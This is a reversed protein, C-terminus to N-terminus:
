VGTRCAALTETGQGRGRAEPIRFAPSPVFFPRGAESCLVAVSPPDVAQYAIRLREARQPPQLLFWKVHVAGNCFGVTENEPDVETPMSTMAMTKAMRADGEVESRSRSVWRRIYEVRGWGQTWGTFAGPQALKIVNGDSV